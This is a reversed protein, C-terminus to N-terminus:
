QAGGGPGAAAPTGGYITLVGNALVALDEVGDGDFDGAELARGGGSGLAVKARGDGDRVPTLVGDAYTYFVVESTGLVALAPRNGAIRVSAFSRGLLPSGDALPVPSFGGKGDGRLVVLAGPVDDGDKYRKDLPVRGGDSFVLDLAGDADIDILSLKEAPYLGQAGPTVKCADAQQVDYPAEYITELTPSAAGGNPETSVKVRQFVLTKRERSASVAFASDRGGISGSIVALPLRPGYLISTSLVDSAVSPPPVLLDSIADVFGPTCNGPSALTLRLADLKSPSTFSGFAVGRGGLAAPAKDGRRLNLISTPARGQASYVAYIVSKTPSRNPGAIIATDPDQVMGLFDVDPFPRDISKGVEVDGFPRRLNVLESLDKRGVRVTENEQGGFVIYVSAARTQTGGVKTSYAVDIMRDGDFHGAVIASVPEPTPVSLARIEGTGGRIVDLNAQGEVALVADARGDGDFDGVEMQTWGSTIRSYGLKWTTASAGADGGGKQSLYISSSYVFDSIGDGNLDALGLFPQYRDSTPCASPHARKPTGVTATRIAAGSLVFPCAADTPIPNGAPATGVAVDQADDGDFTGVGVAQIAGGLDFKPATPADPDLLVLLPNDKSWAFTQGCNGDQRLCLTGDVPGSTFRVQGPGGPLAVVVNPRESKQDLGGLLFLNTSAGDISSVAGYYKVRGRFSGDVAPLPVPVVSAVKFVIKPSDPRAGDFVAELSQYPLLEPVFPDDVSGRLIGLGFSSSYGLDTLPFSGTLVTGTGADSAGIDAGADTAVTAAAASETVQSPIAQLVGVPIPIARRERIRMGQAFFLGSASSTGDLGSPQSLVLDTRGDGDFDGRVMRVAGIESTLEREFTGSPKVCYGDNLNCAFGTPCAVLADCVFRCANRDGPPACESKDNKSARAATQSALFDCDENTDVVGNGCVGPELPDLASCAAVLGIVGVVSLVGLKKTDV